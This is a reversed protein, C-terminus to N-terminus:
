EKDEFNSPNIFARTFVVTIVLFIFGVFGNDMNAAASGFIVVFVLFLLNVFIKM